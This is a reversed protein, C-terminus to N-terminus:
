PTAGSFTLDVLAGYWVANVYEVLELVAGSAGGIRSEQGFSVMSSRFGADLAAIGTPDGPEAALADLIAAVEDRTRGRGRVFREVIPGMIGPIGASLDAVEEAVSPDVDAAGGLWSAALAVASARDLPPVAVVQFPKVLEDAFRALGSLVVRLSPTRKAEDMLHTCVLYACRDQARDLHDLVLVRDGLAGLIADTSADAAADVVTALSALLGDFSVGQVDVRVVARGRAELAAAVAEMVTSVGVGPAGTLRLHRTELAALIHDRLGARGVADDARAPRGLRLPVRSFTLFAPHVPLTVEFYTREEDFRFVPPPSGNRAMERRIKGIGSQRPEALRVEKLLEAIRRNRAPVAPTDEGKLSAQSIGPVPGPYSTIRVRDPFM